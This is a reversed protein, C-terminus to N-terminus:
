APDKSCSLEAFARLHKIESASMDKLVAILEDVRPEPVEVLQECAFARQSALVFVFTLLITTAWRMM